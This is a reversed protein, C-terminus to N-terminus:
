FDASDPHPPPPAFDEMENEIVRPRPRAPREQPEVPEVDVESALRSPPVIIQGTEYRRTFPNYRTSSDLRAGTAANYYQNDVELRGTHPNRQVRTQVATGTYPNFRAGYFNRQRNAPGTWRPIGNGIRITELQGTYPNRRLHNEYYGQGHALSCAAASAALVSLVILRKM